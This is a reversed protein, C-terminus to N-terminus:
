LHKNLSAYLDRSAPTSDANPNSSLVQLQFTKSDFGSNCKIAPKGDLRYCAYANASATSLFLIAALLLVM